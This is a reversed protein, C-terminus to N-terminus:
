RELDELVRRKVIERGKGYNFYREVEQRIVADLSRAVEQDIVRRVNEESMARELADAIWEDRRAEAETLAALMTHEINKIHVEVIPLENM